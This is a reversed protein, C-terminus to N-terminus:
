DDISSQAQNKSAALTWMRLLEVCVAETDVVSRKRLVCVESFLWGIRRWGNGVMTEM